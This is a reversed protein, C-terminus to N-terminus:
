TKQHQEKLLNMQWWTLLSFCLCTGHAVKRSLFSAVNMNRTLCLTKFYEWAKTAFAQKRAPAEGNGARARDHDM